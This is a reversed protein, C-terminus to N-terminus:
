ELLILRWLSNRGTSLEVVYVGAGLASIDASFPGLGAGAPLSPTLDLVPAMNIDSIKLSAGGGEPLAIRARLVGDSIVSPLIELYFDDNASQILRPSGDPFMWLNETTFLGPSVATRIDENEAVGNFWRIDAVNILTQRSDGLTAMMPIEVLIMGARFDDEGFSIDLPIEHRGNNELGRAGEDVTTFSRANFSLNMTLRTPRAAPKFDFRAADLYVPLTFQEGPAAALDGPIRLVVDAAADEPTTSVAHFVYRKEGAATTIILETSHHRQTLPSLSVNIEYSECPDITVTGTWSLELEGLRAGEGLTITLPANRLNHITVVVSRFFGAEVYGLDLQGSVRFEENPNLDLQALFGNSVDTPADSKMSQLAEIDVPFDDSFTTGGLLVRTDSRWQVATARDAQAGGHQAAFTFDNTIRDYVVAFLDDVGRTGSCGEISFGFQSSASSGALALYRQERIDLAALGDNFNGGVFGSTEIEGSGNLITLFGDSFTPGGKMQTQPADATWPFDTSFTTGVIAVLAGDIRQVDAASDDYDGGLFRLYRLAGVPSFRAAFADRGGNNEGQAERLERSDAYGCVYAAGDPDTAIGLAADEGDGGLYTAYTLEFERQDLYVVVADRTLKGEASQKLEAQYPTGSVPFDQSATWGCLLMLRKGGHWVVDTMADDAEGGILRFYEVNEGDPLLVLVFGDTTGRREGEFNFGPTAFDDSSTQGCIIIRGDNGISMGGVLDDSSGGLIRSWLLDTGNAAFASIFIDHGDMDAGVSAGLTIPFDVSTTEGVVVISGDDRRRMDCIRDAGLGGWYTADVLPDIILPLTPDYAGVCFAATIEEGVKGADIFQCDVAIRRGGKEQYAFLGGHDLRHEGSYLTLEEDHATLSDIGSFALRLRRPDLGPRLVFDYRPMGNQAQVLMNVGECVQPVNLSTPWIRYSKSREPVESSCPAINGEAAAALDVRMRVCTERVSDGDVVYHHFLMGDELVLAQLGPKLGGLDVPSRAMLLATVGIQVCLCVLFLQRLIM